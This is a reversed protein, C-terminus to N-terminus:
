AFQCLSFLINLVTKWIIDYFIFILRFALAFWPSPFCIVGVLCEGYLALFFLLLLDFISATKKPPFFFSSIM